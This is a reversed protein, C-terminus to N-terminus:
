DNNKFQSLINKLYNRLLFLYYFVKHRFLLRSKYKDLIKNKHNNNNELKIFNLTMKSLGIKIIFNKFISKERIKHIVDCLSLYNSLYDPNSRTTENHVHYHHTGLSDDIFGVKKQGLMLWIYWDFFTLDQFIVRDYDKRFITGILFVPNRGSMISNKSWQNKPFIKPNNYNTNGKRSGTYDINSYIFGLNPHSKYLSVLKSVANPYLKDDSCLFTIFEGNAMKYVKKFNNVMGINKKNQFKKYSDNSIESIIKWSEDTSMNDLVIVEINSYTQNLASEICGKIYKESNYNPICISVLPNYSM